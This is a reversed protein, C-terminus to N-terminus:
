TATPSPAGPPSRRRCPSRPRSRCRAASGPWPASWGPGRASGAVRVGIVAGSIAAVTILGRSLGASSLGRVASQLELGVLVFLAGNLLFTSLSFFAQTQQRTEPQGVRPTVQSMVLGCVVVALVGSAHVADALLFAAFPIVIVSVGVLLPDDLRRRLHNWVWASLLGAVAGGGYSLLFLGSVPLV